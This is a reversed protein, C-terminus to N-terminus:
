KIVIRKQPQYTKSIQEFVKMGDIAASTIGGAYGAGEGAPILGAINTEFNDNRVIRVPSSTRTEVASLVVDDNSFGDIKKGFYDIGEILAEIIYNPFITNLNSLKYKGKIQPIINGLKTTAINNKFDSYLQVPIKGEGQEYARSELERQYDIGALPHQGSFDDPTVTVVIASNANCGDRKSYSMGNVVKGREESSSDVVFGGPCMCFSYVGRNQSTKYTLKYSAAGLRNDEFGYQSNNIMTQKHEIRVGLAFPKQEMHVGKDYLMQFTDRASHGIAFICVETKITQHNSLHIESIKNNKHSIDVVSTNFYFTGGMEIIYKRMNSVIEKLIDTGIHPKADYLIKEDAGFKVFTELVFRIRNQKDKIGTNLKGDSFTGAGGEGFQVNCNLNLEDKEWFEEVIRSRNEVMDGREVIIPAFGNMALLYAAFMGAPGFGVVVPRYNMPRDGSLKYSYQKEKEIVLVNKRSKHYSEVYLGISYVKSIQAKNRADVSYKLIRWHRVEKDSVGSTKLAKKYADQENQAINLKINSVQLLVM